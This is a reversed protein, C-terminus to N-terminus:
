GAGDGNASQALAQELVGNMMRSYTATLHFRNRYVTVNGIVPTCVLGCLWPLVSVYGAGSAQAASEDAGNWVRATAAARTTFCAPVNHANKALCDPGSEALVPTDGLVVVRRASRRLTSLTKELGVRWEGPTILVGRGRKQSYSENTVVVLNPREAAIRAAVHERFRDCEVFPRSEQQNWVTIHVAPCGPKGFFQLRWHRRDAIATMAPLWMGAHSDGYLVVKISSARDGFVCPEIRDAAPGAECKENDFGLDGGTATLAPTLDAPLARIAPAKRVATLVAALAVQPAASEAPRPAPPSACGTLLVLAVGFILLRRTRPEPSSM